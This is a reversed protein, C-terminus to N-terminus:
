VSGEGSQGGGMARWVGGRCVSDDGEGVAMWECQGKCVNSEM